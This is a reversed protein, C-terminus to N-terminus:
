LKTKRTEIQFLFPSFHSFVLHTMPIWWVCCFCPLLLSKALFCCVCMCFSWRKKGLIPHQVRRPQEVWRLLGKEPSEMNVQRNLHWILEVWYFKVRWVCMIYGYVALKTDPSVIDGSSHTEIGDDNEDGSHGSVLLGGQGRSAARFQPFFRLLFHSVRQLLKVAVFVVYLCRFFVCM